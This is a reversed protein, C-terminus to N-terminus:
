ILIHPNVIFSRDDDDDNNARAIYQATCTFGDCATGKNLKPADFIDMKTTSPFLTVHLYFYTHHIANMKPVFVLIGNM